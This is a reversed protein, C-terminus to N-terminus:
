SFDSNRSQRLNIEWQGTNLLDRVQLENLFLGPRFDISNKITDIKFRREVIPHGDTDYGGTASENWEILNLIQKKAM